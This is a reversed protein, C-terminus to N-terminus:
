NLWDDNHSPDRFKMWHGPQWCRQHIYIGELYTRWVSTTKARITSSRVSRTGWTTREQFSLRSSHCILSINWAGLFLFFMFKFRSKYQTLAQAVSVLVSCNQPHVRTSKKPLLVLTTRPETAYSAPVVIHWKISGGVLWQLLKPSASWLLESVLYPPSSVCPETAGAISVTGGGTAISSISTM